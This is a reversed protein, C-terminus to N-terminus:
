RKKFKDKLVITRFNQKIDDSFDASLAEKLLERYKNNLGSKTYRLSYDAKIGKKGISRAILYALQKETPLKGNKDPRPIIPKIRIWELISELPPQKGPKRGYEVYDFYDCVNLRLIWNTNLRVVKVEITNILKGSADKGNSILRNKLTTEFEKAYEDLIKKTRKLDM